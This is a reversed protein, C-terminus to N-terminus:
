IVIGDRNKILLTWPHVVVKHTHVHVVDCILTMESTLSFKQLYFKRVMGSHIFHVLFCLFIVLTLSLETKLLLLFFSQSVFSWHSRLSCSQLCQSCCKPTSFCTLFALLKMNLSSTLLFSCPKFTLNRFDSSLHGKFLGESSWPVDASNM